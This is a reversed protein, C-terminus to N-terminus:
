LASALLPLAYSCWLSLGPNAPTSLDLIKKNHPKLALMLSHM